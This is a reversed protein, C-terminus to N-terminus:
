LSACLNPTSAPLIRAGATPAAAVTSSDTELQILRAPSLSDNRAFAATQATAPSAPATPLATTPMKPGKNM